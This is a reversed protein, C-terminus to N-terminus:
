FSRFVRLWPPRPATPDSAALDSYGCSGPDGHLHCYGDALCQYDEPCAGNPGCAFSCQPEVPSFCAPLVLALVLIARKM